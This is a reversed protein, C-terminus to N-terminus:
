VGKGVIRGVGMAGDGIGNGVKGVVNGVGGAVGVVGGGVFGGVKGVGTGVKGLAGMIGTKGEPQTTDSEDM